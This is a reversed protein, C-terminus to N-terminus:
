SPTFRSEPVGTTGGGDHQLGNHLTHPVFARQVSPENYQLSTTYPTPPLGTTSRAWEPCRSQTSPTTRHLARQAPHSGLPAHNRARGTTCPTSGAARSGSRVGTTGIHYWSPTTPAHPQCGSRDRGSRRVFRELRGSRARSRESKSLTEPHAQPPQVGGNPPKQYGYWSCHGYNM